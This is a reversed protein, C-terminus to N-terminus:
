ARGVFLSPDIRTGLVPEDRLTPALRGPARANVIRTRVGHELVFPVLCPDVTDTEVPATVTELLRGAAGIRRRAGIDGHGRVRLDAARRIPPRPAAGPRVPPETYFLVDDPDLAVVDRGAVGEVEVRVWARANAGDHMPYDVLRAHRRISM